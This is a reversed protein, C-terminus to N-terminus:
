QSVAGGRELAADKKAAEWEQPTVLRLKEADGAEPILRLPAREYAADLPLTFAAGRAGAEFREFMRVRWVPVPMVQRESPPQRPDLILGVPSPPGGIQLVLVDVQWDADVGRHLVRHEKGDPGVVAQRLHLTAVTDLLARQREHEGNRLKKMARGVQMARRVENM